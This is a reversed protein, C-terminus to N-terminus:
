REGRQEVLRLQAALRLTDGKVYDFDRYTSEERLWKPWTGSLLPMYDGAHGTDFGFCWAGRSPDKNPGAYSLSRHVEVALSLRVLGDDPTDDLMTLLLPFAGVRDLDLEDRLPTVREALGLGNWPHSAGVTVYGSWAGSGPNRYLECQYGSSEFEVDDPESLWVPNDSPDPPDSSSM